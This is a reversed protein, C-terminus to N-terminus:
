FAYGLLPIFCMHVFLIFIYLKVKAITSSFIYIVRYISNM